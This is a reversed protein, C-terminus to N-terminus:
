KKGQYAKIKKEIDYLMEVRKKSMANVVFDPIAGKIDVDSINTVMTKTEDMKDLIFGGVMLEAQVADKDVTVPFKCSRNGVYVKDGENRYSNVVVMERNSVPGPLQMVVHLVKLGNKDYPIEFKTVGDQLTRMFKDDAFIVCMENFPINVVISGKIVKRGQLKM